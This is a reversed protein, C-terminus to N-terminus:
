PTITVPTGVEAWNYLAEAERVGLVICGYSARSGLVGGWLREGNSLIPLAHIGNEATGAWYIGLWNPMQLNWQSAYASPIKNLVSFTGPITERGKLGTSVPWKRLLKEGAFTSLRQESISILIRRAGPADADLSVDELTTRLVQGPYIRDGNPLQNLRMLDTVSSGLSQAINGLTDGTRVTYSIGNYPPAAAPIASRAAIPGVLPIYLSQGARIRDSSLRNLRSIKLWSVGYQLGIAFLSEGPQVTHVVPEGALASGAQSFTAAAILAGALLRLLPRWFLYAGCFHPANEPRSLVPLCGVM